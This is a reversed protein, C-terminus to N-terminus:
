ASIGSAPFERRGSNSLGSRSKRDPARASGTCPRVCLELWAPNTGSASAAALTPIRHLARAWLALATISPSPSASAPPMPRSCLLWRSTPSPPSATLFPCRSRPFTAWSTSSPPSSSPGAPLRLPNASAAPPCIPISWILSMVLLSPALSRSSSAHLKNSSTTPASPVLAKEARLIPRRDCCASRGADDGAEASASMGIRGM